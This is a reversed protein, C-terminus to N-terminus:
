NPKPNLSKESSTSSTPAQNLTIDGGDVPADGTSQIESEAKGVTLVVKCWLLCNPLAVYGQVMPQPQQPGPMSACGTLILLLLLKRM